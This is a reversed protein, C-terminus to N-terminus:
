QDQEPAPPPPPTIGLQKEAHSIRSELHNLRADQDKELTSGVAFVCGPLITTTALLAAAMAFRKMLREMETENETGPSM